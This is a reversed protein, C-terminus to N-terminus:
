QPHQLSKGGAHLRFGGFAQNDQFFDVLHETEDKVICQPLKREM